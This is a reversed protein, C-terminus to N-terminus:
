AGDRGRSLPGVLAPLELHTKHGPPSECVAAIANVMRGGTLSFLAETRATMSPNEESIVFEIKMNPNGRLSVRYGGGGPPQPWDAAIAAYEKPDVFYINEQSILPEGDVIGELLIRMAAVTGPEITGALTELRRSALATTRRYRLEDLEVGMADALFRVAPGWSFSALAEMYDREQDEEPTIGFGLVNMMAKDAYGAADLIESIVLSDIQLATSALHLALPETLGPHIGSVFLTTNGDTCAKAIRDADTPSM